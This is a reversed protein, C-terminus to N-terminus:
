WNKPKKYVVKRNKIIELKVMLMELSDAADDNKCKLKYDLIQKNYALNLRNFLVRGSNVYPEINM